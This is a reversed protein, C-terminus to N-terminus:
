RVDSTEPNPQFGFQFPAEANVVPIKGNSIERSRSTGSLIAASAGVVKPREADEDKREPTSDQRARWEDLTKRVGFLGKLEISSGNQHVERVRM